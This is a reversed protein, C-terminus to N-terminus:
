DLANDHHNQQSRSGALKQQITTLVMQDERDLKLLILIIGYLLILLISWLIDIFLTSMPVLERLLSVIAFGLVGAALPKLFDWRLPHIKLTLWVEVVRLLNVFIITLVGALTAGALGYTPILLWDLLISTGFLLLTNLLSLGSHGSMLLVTGCPGTLANILQAFALAILVQAGRNYSEDFFTM